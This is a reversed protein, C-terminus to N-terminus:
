NNQDFLQDVDAWKGIPCEVTIKKFKRPNFYHKVKPKTSTPCGCKTCGELDHGGVNVRGLFPCSKCITLRREYQEDSVLEGFNELYWNITEEVLTM